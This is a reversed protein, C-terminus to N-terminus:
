EPDVLQFNFVLNQNNPEFVKTLAQILNQSNKQNTLIFSRIRAFHRAADSSRFCGSVKMKVKNMRLDREALNNDFRAESEIMFRLYQDELLDLRELLNRSKSKAVRGRKGKIKKPPPHLNLGKAVIARFKKRYRKQKKLTLVEKPAHDIGKKIRLLLEIMEEAWKQKHEEALFILERLLHANCLSHKCEYSQYSKWYDHHAIGQYHPLIGMRDMAERGRKPDIHFYSLQSSSASHLWHNKQNVRMSTEDCFIASEGLLSNKLQVEFGELKQYARKIFNVVSGQSLKINFVEGFFGTIRKLPLQQYSHLYTSLAKIRPGYAVEHQIQAPLDGSQWLIGCDPCRKVLLQHEVVEIGQPPLDWIQKRVVSEVGESSLDKGCDGCAGVEYSHVQDPSSSMELKHGKHGPQGGSKRNSKGKVSISRKSIDSSPPKSSNRSNLSLQDELYKIRKDQQDVIVLLADFLLSVETDMRPRLKEALVKIQALDM